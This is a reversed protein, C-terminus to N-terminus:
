GNHGNDDDCFKRAFYYKFSIQCVVEKIMSILLLVQLDFSHWFWELRKKGKEQFVGGEVLKFSKFVAGEEHISTSHPPMSGPTIGGIDAHHGRSAVYFVPRAM